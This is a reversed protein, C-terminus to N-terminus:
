KGFASHITTNVKNNMLVLQRCEPHRSRLASYPVGVTYKADPPKSKIFKIREVLEPMVRWSLGFLFNWFTVIM